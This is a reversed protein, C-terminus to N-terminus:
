RQDYVTGAPQYPPDAAARIYAMVAQTEASSLTNGFPPMLASRNLAPGGHQIIAALDADSIRNLADGEAFAHPKVDLNDHNSVQDASSEPDHCRACYKAGLLYGLQQQYSLATEVIQISAPHSKGQTAASLEYQGAITGLTVTTTAQGGSDTLIAAPEFRVGVPGGFTVLAGPVAIGQEDNVQVVVPDKLAAGTPGLQKGGSSEVIAAGTATATLSASSGAKYKCGATAGSLLLTVCVILPRTM